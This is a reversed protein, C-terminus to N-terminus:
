VSALGSLVHEVPFVQLSHSNVRVDMAEAFGRKERNLLEAKIKLGGLGYGGLGCDSKVVRHCPVIPAFPNSAMVNGVARAGGGISKALLGYSTVYGLPIKATAKLVKQTYPSLRSYALSFGADVNRGQYIEKLSALATKAFSSPHHFIQFPTNYPMITLLNRLTQQQTIGFSSAHIQSSSCGIGFWVGDLNQSYVEIM